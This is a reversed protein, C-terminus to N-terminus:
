IDLFFEESNSRPKISAASDPNSIAPFFFFFFFFFSGGAGGCSFGLVMDNIPVHNDDDM